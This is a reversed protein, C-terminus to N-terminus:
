ATTAKKFIATPHPTSAAFPAGGFALPEVCVLEWGDAGLADLNDELDHLSSVAQDLRQLKYTWKM